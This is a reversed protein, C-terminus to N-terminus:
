LDLFERDEEKPKAVKKLLPKVYFDSELGGLRTTKFGKKGELDCYIDLFRRINEVHPWNYGKYVKKKILPEISSWLQGDEHPLDPAFRHKDLYFHQVIMGQWKSMSTHALFWFRPGKYEMNKYRKVFNPGYKKLWKAFEALAEVDFEPADEFETMKTIKDIEDSTMSTMLTKTNLELPVFKRSDFQIYNDRPYNNAIAMSAFIKTSRSADVGKKEISLTENQMEKLINEVDENYKLEDFYLLTTMEVQSNFRETLMSKKGDPTNDHGHLARMLLKLRNKGIGPDGNLVLYTPARKFLSMYVWAYFYTRETQTPFVHMILKKFLPPLKPDYSKTFKPHVAWTPPVYTNFVNLMESRNKVQRMGAPGRPDYERFCHRAVNIAEEHKMGMATLYFAGSMKAMVEDKTVFFKVPDSSMDVNLTYKGMEEPVIREKPGILIDKDRAYAAIVKQLEAADHTLDYIDEHQKFKRGIRERLTKAFAEVTIAASETGLFVSRKKTSDFKTLEINAAEM